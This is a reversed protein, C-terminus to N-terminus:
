ARCGGLHCARVMHWTAGLTAGLAEERISPMQEKIPKLIQSECLKFLEPPEEADM